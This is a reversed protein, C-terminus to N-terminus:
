LLEGLSAAVARVDKPAPERGLHTTLGWYALAVLVAGSGEEGTIRELLAVPGPEPGPAAAIIRAALEEAELM